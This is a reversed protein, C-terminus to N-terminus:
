VEYRMVKGEYHAMDECRHWAIVDTKMVRREAYEIGGCGSDGVYWLEKNRLEFGGDWVIPQGQWLGVEEGGQELHPFNDVFPIGHQRYYDELTNVINCITNIYDYVGAPNGFMHLLQGYMIGNDSMMQAAQIAKGKLKTVRLEAM